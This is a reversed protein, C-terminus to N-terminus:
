GGGRGPEQNPEPPEVFPVAALEAKTQLNLDETVLCVSARPHARQVEM